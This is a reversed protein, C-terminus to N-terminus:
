KPLFHMPEGAKEGRNGHYSAQDTGCRFSATREDAIRRALTNADANALADVYGIVCGDGDEKQAVKSIVLVQGEFAKTSRDTQPDPNEIIWRLIAAVPKGNADLRWEVTTEAHNFPGFSEFGNELYSQRAHGFDGIGPCLMQSSAGEWERLLRCKDRSADTYASDNALAPASILAASLFYRLKPRM